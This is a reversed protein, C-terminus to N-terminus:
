CRTRNSMKTGAIFFTLAEWLRGFFVPDRHDGSEGRLAPTM